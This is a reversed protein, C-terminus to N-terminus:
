QLMEDTQLNLQGLTRNRFPLKNQGPHWLFLNFAFTVIMPVLSPAGECPDAIENESRDNITM